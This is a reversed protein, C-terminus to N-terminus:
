SCVRGCAFPLRHPVRPPRGSSSNRRGLTVLTLPSVVPATSVTSTMLSEFSRPDRSTTLHVLCTQMPTLQPSWSISTILLLPHRFLYNFGQKRVLKRPSLSPINGTKPTEQEYRLATTNLCRYMFRARSTKLACYHLHAAPAGSRIHLRFVTRKM